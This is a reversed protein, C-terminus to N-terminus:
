GAQLLVAFIVFAILSAISRLVHLRAWRALLAAAEPAAPDLSEDLLRHNTPAIVLLTFPVIAGLLVGGALWGLSGTAASRGIATIAGLLALPAQM